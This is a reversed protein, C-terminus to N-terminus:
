GGLHSGWCGAYGTPERKESVNSESGGSEWAGLRERLGHRYLCKHTSRLRLRVKRSYREALLRQLKKSLSLKNKVCTQRPSYEVSVTQVLPALSHFNIRTKRQRHCQKRRCDQHTIRALGKLCNAPFENRSAAKGQSGDDLSTGSPAGDTSTL